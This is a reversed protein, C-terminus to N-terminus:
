VLCEGTVGYPSVWIALTRLYAVCVVTCDQMEHLLISRLVPEVYLDTCIVFAYGESIIKRHMRIRYIVADECFVGFKGEGFTCHGPIGLPRLSWILQKRQVVPRVLTLSRQCQLQRIIKIRCDALGSLDVERAALELQRIRLGIRYDCRQVVISRVDHGRISERPPHDHSRVAKSPKKLVIVDIQIEILLRCDLVFAPDTRALHHTLRRERCFVRQLAYVEARSM